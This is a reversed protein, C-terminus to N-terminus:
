RNRHSGTTQKKGWKGPTTKETKKKQQNYLTEKALVRGKVNGTKKKGEQFLGSHM